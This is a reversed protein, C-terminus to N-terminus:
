LLDCAGITLITIHLGHLPVTYLKLDPSHIRKRDPLSQAWGADRSRVAGETSEDDAIVVKMMGKYAQGLAGAAFVDHLVIGNSIDHSASLACSSAYSM